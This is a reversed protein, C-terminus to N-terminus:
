FKISAGFNIVRQPPYKLYDGNFEPDAWKVEKSWTALNFASAFVRFNKLFKTKALISEPITYGIEVTKLRVLTADFLFFTTNGPQWADARPKSGNPNNVTWRDTARWVSANSFDTGGLASVSADYNYAGAQGQFFINLDFNKYQFDTNLGFVYRPIPTYPVRYRDKDDITGDGNLDVVKIDGVQSNAHHPSKDLEEQTNFIGDAKYYLDSGVPNGTYKQYAEAPPVEDLFVTKSKQYAVNGSISYTLLGTRNRHSIILEYGASNVKGINEFPLGPFGYTNPVSLNRRYLINNRKQTWYTFDVGLKGNWLQAELGLDTKRAREWTVNPNALVGATIGPVTTTGFVYSVPVNNVVFLFAQLYQFPDIRDNGLEGYSARLKLQNVFPLANQIFDEESLRWGASVGPFFGYRKGDPFIQSGDRRFLFEVLYKSKFDYNLRGFYNDYAGKSAGGSNDKDEASTPGVDIQDIATSVYNKRFARAFTFTNQQQERGVMAVIHHKNLFTRDYTIRFNYLMTTWKRYIDELSAAAQGTGQKKDYNGTLTNYEHYFYPTRWVKEFQNSLDYNFSADLKLGTVFPVKYSATFTSYLPNDDIKRYGRQDMLLPNEGLRGPGILGNPYRAVITPNAQLINTFNVNQDIYSSTRNNLIAYINAGVTFNKVLEIDVKARVNYQRYLAPDSRFNGNQELAGFSLLYRVNNSGGNVQLNLNQQRSHPKLVEDIWDTNPYLVPDSGDRYKQIAAASFQPTYNPNRNSRYFVGENYAEAFTAADLVDPIKTPSLLAYKYTFTFDAKGKSGSKTTVLIVGNAARAGYIAASADKLVSISEIDEPNLRGLQSRPVGDIIVLPGNANLLANFDGGPPPVTGTGRILIDPNDAGPQGNRQNVILGPLRGQLSSTVNASPSKAIESGAVQSVSGTLTSKKQSGYGVIVISEASQASLSLEFVLNNEKGAVAMEKTAYGVYSVVLIAKDSNVQITFSGDDKTVTVNGTGKETVTAGALPEGKDNNVKGNVTIPPPLPIEEKVVVPEKKKILVVTKNVITYDFPQDKLCTRLVEDISAKQVNVNVPVSKQLLAKTYAFTYGTQKKIKLFVKELSADKESLSVTQSFGEASAHLCAAISLIITLKIMLLMKGVGKRKFLSPCAIFQM